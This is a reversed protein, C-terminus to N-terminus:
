RARVPMRYSGRGGASDHLQLQLQSGEVVSADLGHLMLHLGGPELLVHEGPQIELGTAPRMRSIGDVIETRHLEVKRAQASDLAAITVPKDCLNHLQGYGASMSRGAVPARVWASELVLCAPEEAPEATSAAVANGAPLTLALAFVAAAKVIM